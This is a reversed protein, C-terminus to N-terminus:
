AVAGQAGLGLGSCMSLFEEYSTAVKPMEFTIPESGDLSHIRENNKGQFIEGLRCVHIHMHRSVSGIPHEAAVMNVTQGLMGAWGEPRGTEARLSSANLRFHERFAQKYISVGGGSGIHAVTFAKRMFGPRFDPGSFRIIYVRRTNPTGMDEDPSVGVMLFQAGLKREAAPSSAFIKKAQPSWEQAVWAPRWALNDAEPDDAPITLFECLSQLLQFGIHVSGAFGAIIYPGVPYAKRLIDATRGDPFTVRVDSLMVGYGFLSSAGIVWTM